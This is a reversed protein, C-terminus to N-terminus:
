ARGGSPQTDRSPRTHRWSRRWSVTRLGMSLAIIAGQILNQVANAAGMALVVQQLQSLFLAGVGTAIVSGRGGGL